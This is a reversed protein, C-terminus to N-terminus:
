QTHAKLIQTEMKGEKNRFMQKLWLTVLLRFFVDKQKTVVWTFELVHEGLSMTGTSQSGGVKM